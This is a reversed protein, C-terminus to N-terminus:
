FSRLMICFSCRRRGSFTKAVTCSATLIPPCLHFQLFDSAKLFTEYAETFRFAQLLPPLKMVLGVNDRMKRKLEAEKYIKGCSGCKWRPCTVSCKQFENSGKNQRHLKKSCSPCCYMSGRDLLKSKTPWNEECAICHCTFHYSEDVHAQRTNIDM